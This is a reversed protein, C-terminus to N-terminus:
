RLRSTSLGSLRRRPVSPEFGDGELPSDTAFEIQAFAAKGVLNGGRRRPAKSAPPCTREGRSTRSLKARAAESSAFPALSPPARSPKARPLFPPNRSPAAGPPPSGRLWGAHSAQDSIFVWAAYSIM